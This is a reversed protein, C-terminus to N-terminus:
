GGHYGGLQRHLHGDRDVRREDRQRLPAHVACLRKSYRVGASDVHAAEVFGSREGFISKFVLADRCFGVDGEGLVDHVGLGTRRHQRRARTIERLIDLFSRQHEPRAM